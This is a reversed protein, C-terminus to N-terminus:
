QEGQESESWHCKCSVAAAEIGVATVGIVLGAYVVTMSSLRGIRFAVSANPETRASPEYTMPYDDLSSARQHEVIYIRKTASATKM